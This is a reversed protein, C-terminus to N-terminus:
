GQIPQGPDHVDAGPLDRDARGSGRPADAQTPGNLETLARVSDLVQANSTIPGAILLLLLLGKMFKSKRKLM